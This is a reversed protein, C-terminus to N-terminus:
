KDCLQAVNYSAVVAVSRHRFLAVSSEAGSFTKRDTQFPAATTGSTGPRGTGTRGFRDRLMEELESRTHHVALTRETGEESYWIYCGM